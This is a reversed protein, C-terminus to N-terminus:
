RDTLARQPMPILKSSTLTRAITGAVIASGQNTFHVVDGFLQYRGTLASDVDVVAIGRQAAYSRTRAAALREFRLMDDPRARPTFRRWGLLLIRDEPRSPISSRTAHTMLVPTAGTARIDVVLSDLDAIFADARDEPPGHFFWSEPKGATEDAIWHELRRGQIADPTHLADHLRDLLRPRWSVAPATAVSRTSAPPAPWNPLETVLYFVPSPYVLVIQSGFRHAYSNWFAVMSKLSMGPIGANIVESCGSAHLSDALQAPFEQGPTEYYGMTESAGLAMIRTCGSRPQATIDRGRFGFNNLQWQHYRGFPRGHLGLSDTVRLDVVEVPTHGLPLGLRIWDDIRAAAEASCLMAGALVLNRFVSRAVM